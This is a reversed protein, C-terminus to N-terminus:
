NPPVKVLINRALRLQFPKLNGGLETLQLNHLRQKFFSHVKLIAPGQIVFWWKKELWDLNKPTSNLHLVFNFSM